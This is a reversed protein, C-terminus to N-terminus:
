MQARLEALFNETDVFHPHHCVLVAKQNEFVDEIISLAMANEGSRHLARGYEYRIRLARPHTPDALSESCERLLMKVEKARNRMLFLGIALYYKSALTDPHKPGLRTTQYVICENLVSEWAAIPEDRLVLLYASAVTTRRLEPQKELENYLGHAEAFCAEAKELDKQETHFRGKIELWTALKTSDKDRRAIRIQQDISSQIWENMCKYIMKDLNPYGVPAIIREIKTRDMRKSAECKACNIHSLKDLYPFADSKMDEIFAQKENRSMALEFRCKIERAVYLEFVCWLRKLSEPSHWPHVVMVVRGISTLSGRFKTLFMDVNDDSPEHQNNNFMCFWFGADQDDQEDLFNEIADMTEVFLYQWAHSVFWKAPRIHKEGGPTSLLHDVLSLTSSQTFPKLFQRCVDKTLLGRFAERGGREDMWQRVFQMTVGMSPGASQSTPAPVSSWDLAPLISETRQLPPKPPAAREQLWRKFATNDQLIGAVDLHATQNEGRAHKELLAVVQEHNYMSARMIPTMRALNEISPDASANLLEEVVELHGNGAAYHLATSGVSDKLDINAGKILVKVVDAHGKESAIHLATKGNNDQLDISASKDLLAQVVDSKGSSAALFLSSSGRKDQADLELNSDNLLVKIVDMYGNITAIILPTNGTRPAKFNVNAGNKLFVEVAEGHGESASRYLPTVDDLDDGLTDVQVGKSLIAEIKKTDGSEAADHLSNELKQVSTTPM